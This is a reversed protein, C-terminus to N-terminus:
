SFRGFFRWTCAAGDLELKRVVGAYDACVARGGPLLRVLAGRQGEVGRGAARRLLGTGGDRHVVAGFWARGSSLVDPLLDLARAM